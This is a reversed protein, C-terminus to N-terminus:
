RLPAFVKMVMVPVLSDAEVGVRLVLVAVLARLAAHYEETDLLGVLM